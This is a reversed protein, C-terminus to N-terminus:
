CPGMNNNDGTGTPLLFYLPDLNSDAKLIQKGVFPLWQIPWIVASAHLMQIFTVDLCLYNGLVVYAFM